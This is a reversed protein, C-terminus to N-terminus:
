TTTDCFHSRKRSLHASSYISSSESLAVRFYADWYSPILCAKDANFYTNREWKKKKNKWSEEKNHKSTPLLLKQSLPRYRLNKFSYLVPKSTHSYGTEVACLCTSLRNVCTASGNMRHYPIAEQLRVCRSYCTLVRRATWTVHTSATMGKWLM